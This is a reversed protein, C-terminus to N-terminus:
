EEEPFLPHLLEEPTNGETMRMSMALTGLWDKGILSLVERWDMRDKLHSLLGNRQTKLSPQALHERSLSLGELDRPVKVFIRMDHRYVKRQCLATASRGNLQVAASGCVLRLDRESTEQVWCVFM